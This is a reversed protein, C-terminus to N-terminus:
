DRGVIVVMGLLVVSWECLRFIEVDVVPILELREESSKNEEEEDPEPDGAVVGDGEDERHGEGDAEETGARGELGNMRGWDFDCGCNLRTGLPFGNGSSIESLSMSGVSASSKKGSAFVAGVRAIRSTPGAMARCM